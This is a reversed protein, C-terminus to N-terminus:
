LALLLKHLTKRVQEFRERLLRNEIKLKKIEEKLRLEDNIDSKSDSIQNSLCANYTNIESASDGKLVCEHSHANASIFFINIFLIAFFKQINFNEFKIKVNKM